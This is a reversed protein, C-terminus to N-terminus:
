IIKGMMTDEPVGNELMADQIRKPLERAFKAGEMRAQDAEEIRGAAELTEALVGAAVCSWLSDGGRKALALSARASKDAQEGIVGSFFKWSMINLVM